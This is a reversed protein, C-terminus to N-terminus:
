HSASKKIVIEKGFFFGSLYGVENLAQRGNQGTVKERIGPCQKMFPLVGILLQLPVNQLSKCQAKVSEIFSSSHNVSSDFQFGFAIEGLINFSFHSTYEIIDINLGEPKNKMM